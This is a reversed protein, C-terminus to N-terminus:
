DMAEFESGAADALGFFGHHCRGYRLAAVSPSQNLISMGQDPACRAAASSGLM